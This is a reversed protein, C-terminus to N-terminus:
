VLKKVAFTAIGTLDGAGAATTKRAQIQISRGEILYARNAGRAQAFTLLGVRDTQDIANGLLWATYDTSHTAALTNAEITEGDVLIQVGLTENVDEINVTAIYVRCNDTEPLVDYWNNQVPAAQDLTSPPQYEWIAM